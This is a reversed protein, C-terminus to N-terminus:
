VLMCVCMCPPDTSMHLQRKIRKEGRCAANWSLDRGASSRDMMLWDQLPRHLELCSHAGAHALLHHIQCCSVGLLHHPSGSTSAQALYTYEPCSVMCICCMGHHGSDCLDAMQECEGNINGGRTSREGLAGAITGGGSSCTSFQCGLHSGLMDESVGLGSWHLHRM